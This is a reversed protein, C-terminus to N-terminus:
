YVHGELARRFVNQWLYEDLPQTQARSKIRRMIEPPINVLAEASGDPKEEVLCNFSLPAPTPLAGARDIDTSSIAAEESPKTSTKSKVVM